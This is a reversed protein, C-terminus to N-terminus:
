GSGGERLAGASRAEQPSCLSAQWVAYRARPDPPGHCASGAGRGQPLAGSIRRRFALLPLFLAPRWRDPVSARFAAPTSGVLRVSSAPAAPFPIRGAPDPSSRQVGLAPLPPHNRRGGEASSRSSPAAYEYSLLVHGGTQRSVLATAPLEGGRPRAHLLRQEHRHPLSTRMAAGPM